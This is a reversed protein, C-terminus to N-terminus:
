AGSPSASPSVSPSASPSASPSESPSVSPSVSPSNSPSESPSASPSVSPSVSPSASPSMSPSESVIHEMMIEFDVTYHWYSAQPESERTLRTLERHMSIFTDGIIILTGWDYLSRLKTYVDQIEADDETSSFLDFQVRVTEFFYKFFNWSPVDSVISYVVYPFSTTEPAQTNYLRGGIITYFDNHVGGITETFKTYLATLLSLM